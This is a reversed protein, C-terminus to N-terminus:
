LNTNFVTVYHMYLYEREGEPISNGWKDEIFTIQRKALEYHISQEIEAMLEATPKEVQEGKEIRTLAMPLHTFLMESHDIDNKNVLDMVQEFTELAVSYAPTSIIGKEILLQLRAKYDQMNM